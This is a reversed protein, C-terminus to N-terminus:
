GGVSPDYGYDMGAGVAEDLQEDTVADNQESDEPTPQKDNPDDIM